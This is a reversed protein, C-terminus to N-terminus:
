GWLRAGVNSADHRPGDAPRATKKRVYAPAPRTIWHKARQWRVGLRALARRMAEGSIPRPTLGVPYAIEAALALTWQSPPTGFPRPRQPLLARLQERRPPDFAAHPTRQPACSRRRLCALGQTNFAQIVKRVTQDDCGLTEAIVRATQGRASALLIHCRRLVFANSSRLGEQLPQQEDATLPRISLPKRM